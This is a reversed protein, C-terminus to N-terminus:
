EQGKKQQACDELMTSQMCSSTQTTQAMGRDCVAALLRVLTVLGLPALVQM